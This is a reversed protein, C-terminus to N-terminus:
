NSGLTKREKTRAPKETPKGGQSPNIKGLKKGRAKQHETDMYKRILIFRDFEDGYIEFQNAYVQM